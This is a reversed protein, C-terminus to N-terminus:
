EGVVAALWSAFEETILDRNLENLSEHRTAPYVTTTLNSFGLRRMRKALAEVAKGGNSAPDDAGGVLHFPMDQPVAAFHRDEAGQFVLDFIDRWM